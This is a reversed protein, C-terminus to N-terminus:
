HAFPLFSAISTTKHAALPQSFSLIGLLLPPCATAATSPSFLPLLDDRLRWSPSGAGEGEGCPLPWAVSFQFSYSSFCHWCMYVQGKRSLSLNIYFKEATLINAYRSSFRWRLPFYKEVLSRDWSLCCPQLCSNLSLSWSSTSAHM